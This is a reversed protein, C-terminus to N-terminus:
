PLKTAPQRNHAEDTWKTGPSFAIKLATRGDPQLRLIDKWGDEWTIWAENRVVKWTGPAPEHSRKATFSSYLTLEFDPSNPVAVMKWRGVFRKPARKPRKRTVKNQKQIPKVTVSPTTGLLAHVLERAELMTAAQALSDGTNSQISPAILNRREALWILAVIVIGAVSAFALCEQFLDAGVIPIAKVFSGFAQATSEVDHAM